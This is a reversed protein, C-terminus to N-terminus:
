KGGGKKMLQESLANYGLRQAWDLPTYEWAGRVAANAGADILLRVIDGRNYAAALHLPTDGDVHRANVDAGRELLLRAIENNGYRAAYHLPTWGRHNGLAANAGNDILWAAIEEHGQEAALHLVTNGVSNRGNIDDGAEVRNQAAKLNGKAVAQLLDSADRQRIPSPSGSALSTRYDTVEEGTDDVAGTLVDYLSLAYNRGVQLCHALPKWDDNEPTYGRPSRLGDEHLGFHQTTGTAEFGVPRKGERAVMARIFASEALDNPVYISHAAGSHFDILYDVKCRTDYRMSASLIDITSVIGATTWVRNHNHWGAGVVEPSQVRSLIYRGDPNVLPYVYFETKRRMEAARPDDGLLFEIVTHLSWCGTPETHNGATLVITRKEGDAESDTIRYGFLPQPAIKIDAAPNGARDTIPPIHAAEYILDPDTAGSSYGIVFDENASPTPSAYPSRRVREVHEAKMRATYVTSRPTVPALWRMEDCPTKVTQQHNLSLNNDRNPLIPIVRGDILPDYWRVGLQELLEYVAHQASVPQLGRIQIGGADVILAFANSMGSKENIMDELAADATEGIRIPILDVANEADTVNDDDHSEAQMPISRFSRGGDHAVIVTLDQPRARHIRVPRTTHTEACHLVVPLEVGTLLAVHKVLEGAAARATVHAEADLVVVAAAHGDRVLPTEATAARAIGIGLVFFATFLTTIVRTLMGRPKAAFFRQLLTMATNGIRLAQRGPRGRPARDPVDRAVLGNRPIIDFNCALSHETKM